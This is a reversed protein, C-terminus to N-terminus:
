DEEINKQPLNKVIIGMVAVLVSFVQWAPNSVLAEMGPSTNIQIICAQIVPIVASAVLAWTSWEKMIEKWKKRWTIKKNFM